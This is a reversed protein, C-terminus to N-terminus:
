IVIENIVSLRRIPHDTEPIIIGRLDRYRQQGRDATVIAKKSKATKGFTM